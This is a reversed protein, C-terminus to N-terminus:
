WCVGLSGRPWVRSLESWKQQAWDSCFFGAPSGTVCPTLMALLSAVSPLQAWALVGLPPALGACWIPVGALSFRAVQEDNM